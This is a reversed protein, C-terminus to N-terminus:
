MLVVGVTQLGIIITLVILLSLLANLRGTKFGLSKAFDADFAFLKFEKWLLLTTLLLGVGCAAIIVVDRTLMASAQGYIFRSLGARNADPAKQSYTLLVLGLGFFVSMVLALASDFKVRSYKVIGLMIFASLLGTILAGLLLAETNRSGTLLFAMVIGPLAAHSIGDGLLSQRRLVAFSGLVGSVTGFLASGLAVIHFTYDHFLAWVGTM